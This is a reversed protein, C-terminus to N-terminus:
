QDSVTLIEREEPVRVRLDGQGDLGEGRCVAEDEGPRWQLVVEFLQPGEEVEDKRPLQARQWDEQLLEGHGDCLAAVGVCAAHLYTLVCQM